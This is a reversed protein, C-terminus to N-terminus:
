RTSRSTSARCPRTCCTARCAAVGRRARHSARAGPRGLLPRGRPSVPAVRSRSVLRRAEDVTRLFEVPAVARLRCARAGGEGRIDNCPTGRRRSHGRQDARGAGRQGARRRRYQAGLARTRAGVRPEEARRLRALRRDERSACRLEACDRAHLRHERISWSGNTPSRSRACAVWSTAARTTRSSSSRFIRRRSQIPCPMTPLAFRRCPATPREAAGPPLVDCALMIMAACRCGDRRTAFRSKRLMARAATSERIGKLRRRGSARTRAM